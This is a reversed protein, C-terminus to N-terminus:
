GAGAPALRLVVTGLVDTLPLPGWSISDDSEVGDGLIFCHGAPVDWHEPLDALRLRRSLVPELDARWLTDGPLGVVRKVFRDTDPILPPAEAQAAAAEGPDPLDRLPVTVYGQPPIRGLVIQGRRLPRRRRRLVLVRDRHALAPAMSEGFVDVVLLTRRALLTTGVALAAAAAIRRM